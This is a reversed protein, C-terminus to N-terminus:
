LLFSPPSSVLATTTILFRENDVRFIASLILHLVLSGIVCFAVMM